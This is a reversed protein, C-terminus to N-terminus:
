VFKSLQATLFRGIESAPFPWAYIFDEKPHRKRAREIAGRIDTEAHGGGRTLMPTVVVIKEAGQGAAQDLAEDLSPACFENFGLIVKRGSERRLQVALEQSGAFFPDNRATRPWKRMKAELEMYRRSLSGKEPGVAHGLKSHLHFFETMEPGPFDNPPAGHMALVIVARM